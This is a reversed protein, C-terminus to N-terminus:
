DEQEGIVVAMSDDCIPCKVSVESGPRVARTVTLTTVHPGELLCVLLRLLRIFRRKM